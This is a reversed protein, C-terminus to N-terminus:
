TTSATQRSPVAPRLAAPAKHYQDKTKPTPRGGAVTASAKSRMYVTEGCWFCQPDRRGYSGHMVRVFDEWAANYVNEDPWHAEDSSM